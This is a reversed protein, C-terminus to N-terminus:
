IEVPLRYKLVATKRGKPKGAVSLNQVLLFASQVFLFAHDPLLKRISLAMFFDDIFDARAEMEQYAPSTYHDIGKEFRIVLECIANYAKDFVTM